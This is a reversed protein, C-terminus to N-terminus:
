KHIGTIILYLTLALVSLISLFLSRKKNLEDKLGYGINVLGLAFVAISFALPIIPLLPALIIELVNDYGGHEAFPSIFLLIYLSSLAFSVLIIGVIISQINTNQATRNFQKFFLYLLFISIPLVYPNTSFSVFFILILAIIGMILYASKVKELFSQYFSSFNNM